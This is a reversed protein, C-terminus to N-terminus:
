IIISIHRLYRYTDIGYKQGAQYSWNGNVLSTMSLLQEKSIDKRNLFHDIKRDDVPKKYVRFPSKMNELKRKAKTRAIEVM